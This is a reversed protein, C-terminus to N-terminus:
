YVAKQAGHNLGYRSDPSTHIGVAGSPWYVDAENQGCLVLSERHPRM